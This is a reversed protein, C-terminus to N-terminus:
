ACTRKYITQTNNRMKFGKRKVGLDWSSFWSMGQGWGKQWWGLWYLGLIRGLGCRGCKAAPAPASVRHLTTPRHRATAAASGSRAAPPRVPPEVRHAGGTCCGRRTEGSNNNRNTKTITITNHNNHSNHKHSHTVCGSRLVCM